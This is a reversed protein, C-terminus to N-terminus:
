RGAVHLRWDVNSTGPSFLDPHREVIVEAVSRYVQSASPTRNPAPSTGAQESHKSGIVHEFEDCDVLVDVAAVLGADAALSGTQGWFATPQNFVHARLQMVFREDGQAEDTTSAGPRLDFRAIFDDDVSLRQITARLEEDFPQTRVTAGGRVRNGIIHRSVSAPWPFRPADGQVRELVVAWGDGEREGLVLLHLGHYEFAASSSRFRPWRSLNDHLMGQAAADLLSLVSEATPPGVRGLLRVLDPESPELYELVSAFIEPERVEAARLMAHARADGDYARMAVLPLRGVTDRALWVQAVDLGRREHVRRIRWVLDFADSGGCELLCSLVCWPWNRLTGQGDVADALWPLIAEGYRLYPDVNNMGRPPMKWSLRRAQDVFEGASELSLLAAWLRDSLLVCTGEVM